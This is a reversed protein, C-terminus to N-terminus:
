DPNRGSRAGVRAASPANAHREAAEVMAAVQGRLWRARAVHRLCAIGLVALNLALWLTLVIAIQSM